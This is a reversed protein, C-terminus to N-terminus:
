RWKKMFKIIFRTGKSRDLDLTGGIQIVLGNVLDLGISVPHKWDIDKDIGVGDDAVYIEVEGLKDQSLGIEINGKREGPFAHKLSNSVLESVILSSHTALDLGLAVDGKTQLNVRESMDYTNILDAGVVEVCEHFDVKSIDDSNHLLEHIEAMSRIRDRFNDLVDHGPPTSGKEIARSQIQLLGSILDLNNKVRHHIERLLMEKESLASDTKEESQRLRTAAMVIGAGGLFWLLIHATVLMSASRRASAWLPEMPFTISIAGQVDGEMYGQSAHCGLCRKETTLPRILRMREIGGTKELTDVQLAGREFSRIADAEWSDPMNEPNLPDLSVLRESIGHEIETMEYVERMMLAPNILTLKKGSLTKLDRDPFSRLFPNPQVDKAVEVYVGGHETNWRRYVINKEYAMIAQSRASEVVWRKMEFLNWVLSAAIIVTWAIALLLVYRKWHTGEKTERTNDLPM